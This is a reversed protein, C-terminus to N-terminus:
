FDFRRYVQIGGSTNNVRSSYQTNPLARFHGPAVILSGDGFSSLVNGAYDYRVFELNIAEWSITIGQSNAVGEANTGLIPNGILDNCIFQDAEYTWTLGGFDFRKVVAGSTDFDLIYVKGGDIGLL